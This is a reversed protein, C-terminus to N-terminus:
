AAAAKHKAARAVHEEAQAVPDMEGTAGATAAGTAGTSATMSAKPAAPQKPSEAPGSSEPASKEEDSDEEEGVKMESTAESAISAFRMSNKKQEQQKLWKVYVGGDRAYSQTQATAKDGQGLNKTKSDLYAQYGFGSNAQVNQKAAASGDAMHYGFDQAQAVAFVVCLSLLVTCKM